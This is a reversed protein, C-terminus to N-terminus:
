LRILKKIPQYVQYLAHLYVDSVSKQPSVGVLNYSEQLTDWVIKSTKSTGDLFKVTVLVDHASAEITGFLEDTIPITKM